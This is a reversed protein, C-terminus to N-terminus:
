PGMSLETAEERELPDSYGVVNKVLQTGGAIIEPVSKACISNM